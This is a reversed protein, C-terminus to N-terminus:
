AASDITTVPPRTLTAQLMSRVDPHAFQFGEALLRHPIVFQDGLLLDAMDRLALRLLPAPVTLLAPRHLIGALASTLQANTAPQPLTLNYSGQASETEITWLVARLWDTLSIMAMHQHGNGLRGGLGLLFPIKMLGLPGGGADMVAATRLAVVRLGADIAASLPEEWSLVVQAVFDEGAPATEDFPVPGSRIGYWGIATGQIFVPRHRTAARISLARSLTRAPDVRSSIILKRRESTWPRDAIGAGALNVVVDVDDLAADDLEGRDPDWRWENASAPERRVLRRVEDGREALQARLATGLFGSAGALLIKM